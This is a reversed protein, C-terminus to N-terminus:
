AETLGRAKMFDRPNVPQGNVVTEFHLHQGTSSGTTGVLGLVTGKAVVQGTQVRISNDRMHFYNTKWGNGHDITVNNGRADSKNITVTGASAAPIELGGIGTAGFDLGAHLKYVETVPNVRMGFQAQQGLTGTKIVYQNYSFPWMWASGDDAPAEPKSIILADMIAQAVPVVADYREPHASVQVSQAAQGPSVNRWNPKDLLGPPNGNNPGTPGGIFAETSYEVSMLEEVRGWGSQPRQQFLGLSDHDQGDRDHPYNASTPYTSSNAYMYLVSEVIATILAVLVAARDVTNVKAAVVIINAAHTLQVKNLNYVTGNTSTATLSDPIPGVTLSGDGPDIPNWSPDAETVELRERLVYLNNPTPYALVRRGDDVVCSLNNGLVEIRTLYPMSDPYLM